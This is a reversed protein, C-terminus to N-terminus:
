RRVTFHGHWGRRMGEWAFDVAGLQTLLYETDVSVERVRFCWLTRHFTHKLRRSRRRSHSRNLSSIQVRRRCHDDDRRVRVKTVDEVEGEDSRCGREESHSVTVSWLLRGTGTAFVYQLMWPMHRKHEASMQRLSQPLPLYPHHLRHYSAQLHNAYLCVNICQSLIINVILFLLFWCRHAWRETCLSRDDHSWSVSDIQPRKWSTDLHSVDIDRVFMDEDVVVVLIM